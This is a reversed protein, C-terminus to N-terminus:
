AVRIMALLGADMAEDGNRRRYVALHSTIRIPADATRRFSM